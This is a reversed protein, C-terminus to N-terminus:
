LNNKLIALYVLFVFMFLNDNYLRADFWNETSPVFKYGKNGLQDNLSKCSPEVSSGTTVPVGMLM